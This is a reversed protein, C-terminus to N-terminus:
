GHCDFIIILINIIISLEVWEVENWTYINVKIVKRLHVQIVKPIFFLLTDLERYKTLRPDYVKFLNNSIVLITIM